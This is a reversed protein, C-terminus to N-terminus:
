TLKFSRKNDDRHVQLDMPEVSQKAKSGSCQLRVQCSSSGIQLARIPPGLLPIAVHESIKYFSSASAMLSATNNAM